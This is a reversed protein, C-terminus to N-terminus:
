WWQVYRSVTLEEDVNPSFAGVFVCQHNIASQKFCANHNIASQKFLGEERGGGGGM